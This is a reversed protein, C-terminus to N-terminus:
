WDKTAPVGGSTLLVARAGRTLLRQGGKISRQVGDQLQSTPPGERISRGVFLAPPGEDLALSEDGTALPRGEAASRKAGSFGAARAAPCTSAM